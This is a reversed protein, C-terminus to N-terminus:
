GCLRGALGAHRIVFNFQNIVIPVDLFLNWAKDQFRLVPYTQMWDNYMFCAQKTKGSTRATGFHSNSLITAWASPIGEVDTPTLAGQSHFFM